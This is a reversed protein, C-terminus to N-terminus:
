PRKLLLVWEDEIVPCHYARESADFTSAGKPLFHGFINMYGPEGPLGYAKYSEEIKTVRVVEENITITDGPRVENLRIWSFMVGEVPFLCPRDVM